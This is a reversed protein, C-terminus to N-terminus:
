KSTFDEYTGIKPLIAGTIYTLPLAEDLGNKTRTIRVQQFKKQLIELKKAINWTKQLIELKKQFM